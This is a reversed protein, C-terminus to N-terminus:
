ALEKRLRSGGPASDRRTTSSSQAAPDPPSADGDDPARASPVGLPVHTTCVSDGNAITALQQIHTGLLDQFAAHEAECLEPFEGAVHSIPCHHQCIQVGRGVARVNAVHGAETLAEAINEAILELREDEGLGAPVDQAARLIDTVRERALAAVADDGGIRRLARLASGALDDYTHTLKARAAETLQFRKAPRGPGPRRAGAPAVAAEGQEILADLHRRVGAASIALEKGVESASVPGRELLIRVVEARTGGEQGLGLAPVVVPGPSTDVDRSESDHARDSKVVGTHRFESLADVLAVREWRFSTACM